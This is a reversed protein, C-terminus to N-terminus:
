LEYKLTLILYNEKRGELLPPDPPPTLTNFIVSSSPDSRCCDNVSTIRAEYQKSHDLGLLRRENILSSLTTWETSGVVRYEVLYKFVDASGRDWNLM